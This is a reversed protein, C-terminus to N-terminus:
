NRLEKTLLEEVCFIGLENPPVLLRQHSPAVRGRAEVLLVLATVPVVHMRKLSTQLGPFVAAKLFAVVGFSGFRLKPLLVVREEM